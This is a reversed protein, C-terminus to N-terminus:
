TRGGFGARFGISPRHGRAEAEAELWAIVQEESCTGLFARRRAVVSFDAPALGEPLRRNPPPGLYAAYLRRAQAESITAFGLRFTFRRLAAPDLSAIHNTSCIVPGPHGEICTLLENVQSVEWQHSAGSRDRLLSDAEDLVLCAQERRARRFIAAINAESGGVWRSLIDSARVELLNRGSRGALYRAYQSKGTGPPGHLCLSWAASAGPRTLSEALGDLDTDCAILSPDFAECLPAQQGEVGLAAMMGTVVQEVEGETDGPSILAVTRLAGSIVSPPTEWKRAMQSVFADGVAVGARARHERWIEERTSHGPPTLELVLSMRRIIAPDLGTIDNVIWIVPARVEELLRNLFIKSGPRVRDGYLSRSLLVDDAEDVLLVAGARRGSCALAVRLAALREQRIVDDGDEDAEGISWIPVGAAEAATMALETKGSGPPGHLLVNIGAEGRGTAAAVLAALRDLDPKMHRFASSPLGAVGRRGVLADMWADESAHPRYMVRYVGTPVSFYGSEGGLVRASRNSLVLGSRPLTADPALRGLVENADEGLLAAIGETASGMREAVEDAVIRLASYRQLRLVLLLIAAEVEDLGFVSGAFGANLECAEPEAVPADQRALRKVLAQLRRQRQRPSPDEDLRLSSPDHEGWDLDPDIRQLAREVSKLLDFGVPSRLANLCYARLIASEAKAM